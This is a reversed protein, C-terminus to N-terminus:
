HTRDLRGDMLMRGITPEITSRRKIMKHLAKTLGRKQGSRLIQVGEVDVGQYVRDVMLPHAVTKPM